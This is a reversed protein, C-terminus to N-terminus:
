IVVSFSNSVINSWPMTSDCFPLKTKYGETQNFDMVSYTSKKKKCLVIVEHPRWSFFNYIALPFILVKALCQSLAIIIM